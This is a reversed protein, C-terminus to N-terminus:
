KRVCRIQAGLNGLQETILRLNTNYANMRYHMVFFVEYSSTRYHGIDGYIASSGTLLNGASYTFDAIAQHGGLYRKGLATFKLDRSPHGSSSAYNTWRIFWGNRTPQNVRERSVTVGILAKYNFETPLKWIGKPFVEKCPDVWSAAALPTVGGNWFDTTRINEIGGGVNYINPNDYRLRYQNGSSSETYFLNGRAWYADGVLIASEILRVSALYRKGLQPKFSSFAFSVNQFTRIVDTSTNPQKDVIRSSVININNVKGSITMPPANMEIDVATYFDHYKVWDVPITDAVTIQWSSTNLAIAPSVSVYNGTLISFAGNKLTLPGNPLTVQASSIPSFMGRANLELRIVTSKRAFHVSIANEGNVVDSTTVLGTAYLLDSPNVEKDGSAVVSVQPASPNMEPIDQVNNFSYAFWRYTKNRYVALSLDDGVTGQEQCIFTTANGAGDTAYIVVRYKKNNELPATAALKNGAMKNKMGTGAGKQLDDIHEPEMESLSLMVDFGNSPMIQSRLERLHVDTDIQNEDRIVTSAITKKKMKEWPVTVFDEDQDVGHISFSLGFDGSVLVDESMKEKICGGAFSVSLVVLLQIKKIKVM